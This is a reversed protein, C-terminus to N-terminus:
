ALNKQIFDVVEKVTQFGEADADPIKKLNFHDELNIVIEVLDLSDGALDKAFNTNETVEGAKLHFHSRIIEITENLIDNRQM